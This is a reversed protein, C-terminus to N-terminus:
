TDLRGTRVNESRAADQLPDNRRQPTLIAELNEIRREMRQLGSWIHHLKDEENGSMSRNSRKRLVLWFFLVVPLCVILTTAFLSMMAIFFTEQAM